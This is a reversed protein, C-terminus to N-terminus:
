EGSWFELQTPILLFPGVTSSEFLRDQGNAATRSPVQAVDEILRSLRRPCLAM